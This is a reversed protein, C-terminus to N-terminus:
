QREGAQPGQGPAGAHAPHDWGLATVLRFSAECRGGVKYAFSSSDPVVIQLAKSNTDSPSDSATVWGITANGGRFFRGKHWNSVTTDAAASSALVAMLGACVLLATMSRKM